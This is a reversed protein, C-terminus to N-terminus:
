GWFRDQVELYSHHEAFRRSADDIKKLLRIKNTGKAKVFTALMFRQEYFLAVRELESPSLTEGSNQVDFSVVMRCADRSLKLHDEEYLQFGLENLKEKTGKLADKPIFGGRIFMGGNAVSFAANLLILYSKLQRSNYDAERTMSVLDTGFPDAGQGDRIMSNIAARSIGSNDSPSLCFVYDFEEEGLLENLHTYSGHLRRGPSKELEQKDCDVNTYEALPGFEKELLIGLTGSGGGMDLIRAPKDLLKLSYLKELHKWIGAKKVAETYIRSFDPLKAVDDWSIRENYPMANKM